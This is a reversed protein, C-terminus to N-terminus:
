QATLSLSKPVGIVIERLNIAQKLFQIHFNFLLYIYFIDKKKLKLILNLSTGLFTLMAKLELAQSACTLLIKDRLGAQDVHCTSPHGPSCLFVKDQFLVFIVSLLLM